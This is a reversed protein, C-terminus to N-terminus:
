RLLECTACRCDTHTAADAFVAAAEKTFAFSLRGTYHLQATLVHEAPTKKADEAALHYICSRYFKRFVDSAGSQRQFEVIFESPTPEKFIDKFINIHVLTPKEGEFVDTLTVKMQYWREDMTWSIRKDHPFMEEFITVMQDPNANVGFSSYKEYWDPTEEAERIIKGDPGRNAEGQAVTTDAWEDGEDDSDMFESQDVYAAPEGTKKEQGDAAGKGGAGAGPAFAGTEDRYAVRSSQYTCQLEKDNDEETLYSYGGPKMAKISQFLPIDSLWLLQPADQKSAEEDDYACGQDIADEVNENFDCFSM